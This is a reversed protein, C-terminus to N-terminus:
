FKKVLKIFERLLKEKTRTEVIDDQYLIARIPEVKVVGGILGIAQCIEAAYDEHVDNEMTVVFGKFAESM